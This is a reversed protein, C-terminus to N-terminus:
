SSSAHHGGGAPFAVSVSHTVGLFPCMGLFMALVFNGSLITNLLIQGLSEHAM